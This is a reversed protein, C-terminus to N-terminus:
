GTTRLGSAIGQITLRLLHSLGDVTAEDSENELAERKRGMLLIQAINLPDVYPNRTRISTRLWETGALLEQQGTALLVAAVSRRYESEILPWIARAQDGEEGEPILTMYQQAIAMDAKALALVANDILATFMPWERYLQALTDWSGSDSDAWDALGTGLGYWAPLIERAQTWAFTWPIARLDILTRRARRRSPRSAIPLTEIEGIPTAKDFFTLFGEHDVLERYAKRSVTEVSEMADTWSVPTPSESPRSALFTAHTIQEIHRHAIFRDDYREALVEGQETCRFRGGFARQPLSQIARAAPGGGRGLAGGRGHFITLAVDHKDAVEALQEQGRHLRWVAAFYGGDKTSDSYGVMVMQSRSAAGALYKAYAKNNLLDDLLKPGHALDDITELLPAIPLSPAPGDQKADAWARKWLWLVTMIDSLEHTMSIIYAGFSKLGGAAIKEVLLDFVSLVEKTQDSLNSRDLEAPPEQSLIEVLEEESPKEGDKILGLTALVEHLTESHVESNQRVDLSAFHLGFTRALDQWPDIADAVIREGRGALLYERLLALDAEFDRPDIYAAEADAGAEGLAADFRYMMMRLWHRPLENVNLDDFYSASSPFEERFKALRSGLPETIGSQQSSTVLIGMLQKAQARQARLAEERMVGLTERTVDATVYPHGDRDGGIWTGFSLFTPIDFRHEPYHRRLSQRLEGYVRPVVDLLVRAFFLGREVEDSVRPRSPRVLDSQWLTTLTALLIDHSADDRVAHRLRRLVERTTRRKAESPHATFVPEVQVTDLQRQVEAASLGESKWTAVAGSISEARPNGSDAAADARTALTQVRANDETLNALDFFVSLARIVLRLTEADFGALEAMLRDEAGPLGARRQWALRRVREVADAVSEGAQERVVVDLLDVLGALDPVHYLSASM